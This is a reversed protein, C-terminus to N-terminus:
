AAEALGGDLGGAVMSLGVSLEGLAVMPRAEGTTSSVFRYGLSWEGPALSLHFTEGPLHFAVFALSVYDDERPARDPSALRQGMIETKVGTANAASASFIADSGSQSLNVAISDGGFRVTPPNEPLAAGPNILAFRSNLGIYAERNTLAYRRGTVPDKRFQTAAYTAWLAKSAKDLNTWGLSAGDLNQRAQRQGPTDSDNNLIRSTQQQGVRSERYSMSAISGGM